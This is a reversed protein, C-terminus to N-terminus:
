TTPQQGNASILLPWRGVAFPWRDHVPEDLVEEATQDDDDGDGDGDVDEVDGEEPDVPENRQLHGARSEGDEEDSDDGHAPEGRVDDSALEHLEGLQEERARG